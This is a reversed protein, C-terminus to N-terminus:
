APSADLLVRIDHHQQVPARLLERCHDLLLITVLEQHGFLAVPPRSEDHCIKFPRPCGKNLGRIFDLWLFLSILAACLIRVM